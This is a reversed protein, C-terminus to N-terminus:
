RYRMKMRITSGGAPVQFRASEFSPLGVSTPADNSFGFGEKPMWLTRNFDHDANEDHYQAIAYYGPKVWFCSNTVPLRVPVRTRYLKRGKALFRGKDDPYITFAVEGKGNRMDTAQVVLKVAGNGAVGGCEQASVPAASAAALAGLAIFTKRIM